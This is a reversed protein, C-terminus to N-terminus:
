IQTGNLTTDFFVLDVGPSSRGICVLCAKKSTKIGAFM